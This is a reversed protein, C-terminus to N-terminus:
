QWVKFSKVNIDISSSSDDKNGGRNRFFIGVKGQGADKVIQDFFVKGNVSVKLRNVFREVRLKQETVSEFFNGLDFTEEANCAELTLAGASSYAAQYSVRKRSIRNTLRPLKFRKRNM